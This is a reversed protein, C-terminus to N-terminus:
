TNTQYKYKKRQFNDETLTGMEENPQNIRRSNLKILERYIITIPRKDSSYSVLFKQWGTHERKLRTVTEM